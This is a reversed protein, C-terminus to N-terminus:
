GDIMMEGDEQEDQDDQKASVKGRLVDPHCESLETKQKEIMGEYFGAM